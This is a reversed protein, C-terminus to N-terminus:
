TFKKEFKGWNQESIEVSIDIGKKEQVKNIIKTNQHLWALAEGETYSLHIDKIIDCRGIIKEISKLLNQLGEGTISSLAITGGEGKQALYGEKEDLSLLDVKNAVEIINENLTKIGLTNLVDIVDSKQADTDQHSIDRVHIIINAELVEELTARFAAVLETPLNSIFGVTDSLIIKKGEPLIVERMTPDLTAFLQDKAFINANTLSNFLTSKGANTYGVLAVIQYPIKQRSKRHLGRTKTVKKLQNKLLDIKNRLARRDSEIQREGPGGMFGGGGRQRELHTWSRVLRSKQYELHALGVQLEGERTQAREGFIELILGTRDIVKAGLQRELNRQQIPSLLTDFVVLEIDNNEVIATFDEVKGLGIYTPARTKPLTVIISFLVNLCIADCLSKAEEM